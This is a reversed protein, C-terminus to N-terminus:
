FVLYESRDKLNQPNPIVIGINQLQYFFKELLLFIKAYLQYDGNRTIFYKVKDIQERFIEPTIDHNANFRYPDVEIGRDNLTTSLGDQIHYFSPTPIGDLIEFGALHFGLRPQGSVNQPVQINLQTELEFAFDKLETISENSEIFDKMWVDTPKGNITGLGWCSFGAKLQHIVQLKKAKNPEVHVHGTETDTITVASDTAMAIGFSSLETLVLTM